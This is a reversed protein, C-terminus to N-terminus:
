HSRCVMAAGGGSVRAKPDCAFKPGFETCSGVTSCLVECIDGFDDKVCQSGSACDADGTCMRTCYGNPFTQNVLCIGECDMSSKCPGGVARSKPGTASGGCGALLAALFLSTIARM